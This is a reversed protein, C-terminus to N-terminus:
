GAQVMRVIENLRANDRIDRIGDLIAERIAPAYQELLRLLERETM